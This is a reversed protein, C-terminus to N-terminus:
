RGSVAVIRGDGDPVQAWALTARGTPSIGGSLQTAEGDNIGLLVTRGFTRDRRLRTARIATLYGDRYATTMAVGNGDDDLLVPGVGGNSLKVVRGVTGDRRVHRAFAGAFYNVQWAVVSDGQLDTAMYANEVHHSLKSLRRPKARPRLRPTLQRSWVEDGYEPATPM